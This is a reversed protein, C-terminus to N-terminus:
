AIKRFRKTRMRSNSAAAVESSVEVLCTWTRASRIMMAGMSLIKRTRIVFSSFSMRFMLSLIRRLISGYMPSKEQENNSKGKDTISKSCPRTESTLPAKKIRSLRQRHPIM